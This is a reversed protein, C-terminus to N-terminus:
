MQLRTVFSVAVAVAVAVDLVLVLPSSLGLSHFYCHVAVELEINRQDLNHSESLQHSLPLSSGLPVFSSVFSRRQVFVVLVVMMGKVETIIFTCLCDIIVAIIHLYQKGVRM